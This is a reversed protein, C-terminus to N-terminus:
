GRVAAHAGLTGQRDELWNQVHTYIALTTECCRSAGSETERRCVSFTPSISGFAASPCPKSGADVAGPDHEAVVREVTQGPFVGVQDAPHVEAQEVSEQCPQAVGPHLGVEVGGRAEAADAEFWGGRFAGGPPM